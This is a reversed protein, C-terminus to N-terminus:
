VLGVRALFDDAGPDLWPLRAVTAFGRDASVLATVHERRQVVAALVADFAGIAEHDRFDRMGLVLDDAEVVVLPALLTAYRETLMAADDRGRRRARVHAFEQLVEVTTTATVRGEGAAAIVARCPERLPHEAGVAYLLVTTDLLIM